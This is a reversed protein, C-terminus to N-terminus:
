RSAQKVLRFHDALVKARRKPDDWIGAEEMNAKLEPPIRYTVKGGPVSVEGRGGIAPAKREGVKFRHPLRERMRDQLEDWYDSTRPDFGMQAVESDLARVLASDADAGAPAYWAFRKQFEDVRRMLEPDPRMEQQPTPAQGNGRRVNEVAPALRRATAIAEDRYRMAKIHAEGDGREVADKMLQEARRVHDMTASYQAEISQASQQGVQQQLQNIVQAQQALQQEMIRLQEARRARSERRSRTRREREAPTMGRGASESDEDDGDADDPRQESELREDKAAVEIEGDKGSLSEDVVIEINEVDIEDAGGQPTKDDPAGSM